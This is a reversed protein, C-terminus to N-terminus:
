TTRYDTIFWKELGRLVRIIFCCSGSTVVCVVGM